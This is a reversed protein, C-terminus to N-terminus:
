EPWALPKHFPLFFFLRDCKPFYQGSLTLPGHAPSSAELAVKLTLIQKQASSGCLFTSCLPTLLSVDWSEPWGSSSSNVCLPCLCPPRCPSQQLLQAQVPCHPHLPLTHPLSVCSGFPCPWGNIMPHATLPPLDLHSWPHQSPFRNSPPAKQEFSSCLLCLPVPSFIASEASAM